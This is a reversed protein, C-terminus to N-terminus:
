PCGTIEIEAPEEEEENKENDSQNLMREVAARNTRHRIMWLAMERSLPRGFEAELERMELESIDSYEPQESM